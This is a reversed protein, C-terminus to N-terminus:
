KCATELRSNPMDRIMPATRLDVVLGVPDPNGGVPMGALTFCGSGDSHMLENTAPGPVDPATLHGRATPWSDPSQLPAYFGPAGTDDLIQAGVGRASIWRFTVVHTSSPGNPAWQPPYAQTQRVPPSIPVHVANTGDVMMGNMDSEILKAFDAEKWGRSPAAAVLGFNGVGPPCGKVAGCPRSWVFVFLGYPSNNGCADGVGMVLGTQGGMRYHVQQADCSFAQQPRPTVDIDVVPAMAAHCEHGTRIGLFYTPDCSELLYHWTMSVTPKLAFTARGSEATNTDNADGVTTVGSDGKPAAGAAPAVKHDYQHVNFWDHKQGPLSWVITVTRKTDNEGQTVPKPPPNTFVPAGDEWVAMLRQKNPPDGNGVLLQGYEFTWVHWGALDSEVLACGLSAILKNGSPDLGAVFGDLAPPLSYSIPCQSADKATFPHAPMQLDFGCMFGEAVCLRPLPNSDDKEVAVAPYSFRLTQARTLGVPGPILMTERMVGAQDDWLAKHQKSAAITSGSVSATLGGFLGGLASGVVGGLPGGLVSGIAGGMLAGLPTGTATIVGGGSVWDPIGPPARMGGAIMTWNRNGSVLEAGSNVQAFLNPDDKVPSAHRIAQVFTTRNAEDNRYRESIWSAIAPPLRYKTDVFDAFSVGYNEIPAGLYPYDALDTQPVLGNADMGYADLELVDLDQHVHQLPGALIAIGPVVFHTPGEVTWWDALAYRKPEPRRRYPRHDRDGNDALAAKAFLWDLVGTAADRVAADPAYDRLALIARLQYRSYPLANYEYLDRRVLQRLFQLLWDRNKGNPGSRFANILYRSSEQLLIHNETELVDYGLCTGDPTVYQDERPPGGYPKLVDKLHNVTATPLVSRYQMILHMDGALTVDLEGKRNNTPCSDITTGPQQDVRFTVQQLWAFVEDRPSKGTLPCPATRRAMIIAHAADGEGDTVTDPGVHTYCALWDPILAGIRRAIDAEDASPISLQALSLRAAADFPRAEGVPLEPSMAQVKGYKVVGPPDEVDSQWHWLSIWDSGPAYRVEGGHSWTAVQGWTSPQHPPPDRGPRNVGNQYRSNAAGLGLKWWVTWSGFGRVAVIELGATPGRGILIWGRQFPQLVADYNGEPIVNPDVTANVTSLSPPFTGAGVTNGTSCGLPGASAATGPDALDQWLSAIEHAEPVPAKTADIGVLAGPCRLSDARAVQAALSLTLLACIIGWAKVCWDM